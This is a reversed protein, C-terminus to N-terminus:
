YYFCKIMQKLSAFFQKEVVEQTERVVVVSLLMLLVKMLQHWLLLM